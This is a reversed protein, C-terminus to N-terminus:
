EILASLLDGKHDVFSKYFTDTTFTLICNPSTCEIVVLYFEIMDLVLIFFKVRMFCIDGKISCHVSTCNANSTLHCSVVPKFLHDNFHALLRWNAELLTLFIQLPNGLININKHESYNGSLTQTHNNHNLTCTIIEKM